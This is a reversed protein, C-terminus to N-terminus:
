KAGVKFLVVKITKLFIVFDIWLSWNQIYWIDLQTRQFFSLHNRGSVQWFGTIGPKVNGIIELHEKQIKYVENEMYPRPGILNMDGRIVNFFQPLEDLSTKRLIKGIKTIRPDNKYKHYKDYYKIEEPNQELYEELMKENDEYMTRYKYCSFLKGNKGLRKQKFLVKGKSDKKILSYLLLHVLLMFPLIILVLVKELLHKILLNKADLLRNEFKFASIRVNFFDIIQANSFDFHDLYPILYTEKIQSSYKLLIGELEETTYSKSNVLVLDYNSLTPKYGFYWNDRFEKFLIKRDEGKAIIKVKQKFIDFKFLISKIFRKYFPFTFFILLIFVVIYERSYNDVINTLSLITFVTFFTYFVAKLIQKTERWFDFRLKYIDEYVLFLFLIIYIWAYDGVVVRDSIFFSAVVLHLLFVFIIDTFLLLFKTVQRM